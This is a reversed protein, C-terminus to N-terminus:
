TSQRSALVYPQYKSKEQTLFANYDAIFQNEMAFHVTHERGELDTIKVRLIGKEIFYVEDIFKDDDSLLTKKKFKRRYCFSMFKEAETDSLSIMESIAEYLNNM